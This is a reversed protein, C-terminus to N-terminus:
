PLKRMAEIIANLLFPKRATATMKLRMAVAWALRRYQESTKSLKQPQAKSIRVLPRHGAILRKKRAWEEIMGIPPMRGAKRGEHVYQAYPADSQDAFVAIQLMDPDVITRISRRLRGWAVMRERDIYNVANIEIRNALDNLRDLVIRKLDNM